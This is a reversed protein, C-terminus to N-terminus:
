IAVMLMALVTSVLLACSPALALTIAKAFRVLNMVAVRSAESVVEGSAVSHLESTETRLSKILERLPMEAVTELDALLMASDKTRATAVSLADFRGGPFSHASKQRSHARVFEPPAAGFSSPPTAAANGASDTAPPTDSNAGDASGHHTLTRGDHQQQQQHHNANSNSSSNTNHHHRSLRRSAGASAPLLPEAPHTDPPSPPPPRLIARPSFRLGRPISPDSSSLAGCSAGAVTGDAPVAAVPVALPNYWFSASSTAVSSTAVSSDFTDHYGLFRDRNALEIPAVVFTLPTVRVRSVPSLPAAVLQNELPPVTAPSVPMVSSISSGGTYTAPLVATTAPPPPPLVSPPPTLPSSTTMPSSSVRAAVVSSVRSAPADFDFLVIDDLRSAVRLSRTVQASPHNSGNPTVKTSPPLPDVYNVVRAAKKLRVFRSYLTLVALDFITLLFIVVVLALAFWAAFVWNQRGAFMQYVAATQAGVFFCVPVCVITFAIKSVCIGPDQGLSLTRFMFVCFAACFCLICNIQQALLFVVSSGLLGNVAFPDICVVLQLLAAAFMAAHSVRHLLRPAPPPPPLESPPHLVHMKARVPDDEAESM